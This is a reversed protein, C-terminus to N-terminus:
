AGLCEFPRVPEAFPRPSPTSFAGASSSPARVKAGIRLMPTLTKARWIAPLLPRMSVLMGSLLCAPGCHVWCAFSGPSHLRFNWGPYNRRRELRVTVLDQRRPAGERGRRGSFAFARDFGFLARARRRILSPKEHVDARRHIDGRSINHVADRAFGAEGPVDNSPHINPLPVRKHVNSGLM